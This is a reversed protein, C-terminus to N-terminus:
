PAAQQASKGSCGTRPLHIDSLFRYVCDSEIVRSGGSNDQVRENYGTIGGGGFVVTDQDSLTWARRKIDNVFFGNTSGVDEIVVAGRADRRLVAHRRSIMAQYKFSDLKVTNSKTSRGISVEATGPPLAILKPVSEHDTDSILVLGATPTPPLPATPPCAEPTPPPQQQQQQQQQEQHQRGRSRGHAAASPAHVMQPQSFHPPLQPPFQPLQPPFQPPQQPLQPPLPPLQQPAATFSKPQQQVQQPWSCPLIVPAGPFQPALAPAQFTPSAATPAAAVFAGVAVNSIHGAGPVQCYQSPVQAQQQFPTPPAAM